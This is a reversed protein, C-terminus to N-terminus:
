HEEQFVTLSPQLDGCCDMVSGFLTSAQDMYAYEMLLSMIIGLGDGMKVLGQRDYAGDIIGFCLGLAKTVQPKSIPLEPIEVPRM